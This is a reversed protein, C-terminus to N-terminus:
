SPHHLPAGRRGRSPHLLILHLLAGEAPPPKGVEVFKVPKRRKDHGDVVSLMETGIWTKILGAVKSKNAKTDLNLGLVRAIPIGVWEPSQSSARWSGDAVAAQVKPLDAVVVDALCDPWDWTEVVGVHDSDDFIGVVGNGLSVSKLHFWQRRDTAPALSAKGHTIHFYRRHEEVGAKAGDEKSMGNLVRGIRAGDILSKAGRSDDITYEGQGSAGKRVHHVLGISADAARAIGAFVDKVASIKGPSNEDVGHTSVFPDLTVVVDVKRNAKM